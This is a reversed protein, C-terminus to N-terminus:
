LTELLKSIDIYTGAQEVTIIPNYPIIALRPFPFISSLTAINEECAAMEPTVINAVWGAIPLQDRVIAEVSLLAHNICGLRIGVVLIVPLSLAQAVSAMTERSNLPVRWGGAGEVVCFDHPCMMAGRCMGVIRGADLRLGAESAALHPAIARELAVPNVQQYSLKESAVRLLEEADSNRLGQPSLTCGAAVPKLGLTRLGCDNAASLLAAAVLTKGVGTDTGTIFYQHKKM